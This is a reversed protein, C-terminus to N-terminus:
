GRQATGMMLAQMAAMGTGFAATDAGGELITLKKELARM